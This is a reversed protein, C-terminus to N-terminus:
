CDKLLDLDEGLWRCRTIPKSGKRAGSVQLLIEEPVALEVRCGDSLGYASIDHVFDCAQRCTLPCWNKWSRMMVPKVFLLTLPRVTCDIELMGVVLAIVMSNEVARRHWRGFSSKEIQDQNKLWERSSYRKRVKSLFYCDQM